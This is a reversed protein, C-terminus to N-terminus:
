KKFSPAPCLSVILFYLNGPETKHAVYKEFLSGLDLSYYLNTIASQSVGEGTVYKANTGGHDPFAFYRRPM